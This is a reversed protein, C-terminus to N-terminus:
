EGVENIFAKLYQNCLNTQEWMGVHGSEQLIHVTSNEPIHCQELSASLPVANDHVGIIFLIPKKFANLVSTTDERAMMAKTYQILVSPSIESCIQKLEEILKPQNKQTSEAFLNPVSVDSYAKSGHKSIFDINKKRVELKESNDAYSSSHFLGFANLMEPYKKVFALTTYGGMSHGILTFTEDPIEKEALAKILEALENLSSIEEIEESEGCGPLDPIILRCHNKLFDIQHKWIRSDEGFGHLLMVPNGEGLCAYNVKKNKYFLTAM